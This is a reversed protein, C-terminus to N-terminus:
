QIVMPLCVLPIVDKRIDEWKESCTIDPLELHIFGIFRRGEELPEGNDDVAVFRSMEILDFKYLRNMVDTVKTATIKERSGLSIYGSLVLDLLM